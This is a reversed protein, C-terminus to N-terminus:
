SGVKAQLSFTSVVQSQRQRGQGGLPLPIKALLSASSLARARRTPGSPAQVVKRPSVGRIRGLSYTIVARPHREISLLWRPNPLVYIIPSAVLLFPPHGLFHLFHVHIQTAPLAGPKVLARLSAILFLSTGEGAQTLVASPRGHVTHVQKWSM